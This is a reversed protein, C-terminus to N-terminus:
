LVGLRKVGLFLRPSKFKGIVLPQCKESGDASTRLLVIIREKSKKGGHFKEVRVSLTRDPGLRYFDRNRRRQYCREHYTRDAATSTSYVEMRGSYKKVQFTINNRIKFRRSIASYVHRPRSFTCHRASGGSATINHAHANLFWKMLDKDFDAFINGTKSM